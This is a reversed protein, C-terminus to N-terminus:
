FILYTPMSFKIGGQISSPTFKINRAPSSSAATFKIIGRTLTGLSTRYDGELMPIWSFNLYEQNVCYRDSEVCKQAFQTCLHLRRDNLTQLELQDLSDTYSSYNAGLIIRCARKQIRELQYAQDNTISGHWVPAAYECTPRVYGIYVSVLDGTPVGFRKLRSLMYLRRSSKSVMNNVQSQWGLNSQVTLGLLKTESVVELEIGAIRLSPPAPPERMFCVQMVKCKSPNLKLHNDKAWADLDQVDPGIQSVQKAPRVEGLTLDDVYKFSKTLSEESANNIVGLFTIPGLKTGQPVGCSLTEWESLASHYQVRQRRATLFNIIWPLLESRVGLEYLRQIALTHDICDFAKSFDTVVLTGVTGGKDTCAFERILRGPLADTGAAKKVNLKKLANYMDWVQIQPPLRAPLFAPLEQPNIPPRSQSVSAFNDNIARAIAKEDNQQVGPVSIIPRKQCKNTIIQIGKHWGSPDSSKLNQIRDNYYFKKAQDIARSVKNRLFRWLFMKKEAFAVQRKRILNKIEPTIWPKDESHLKIVKSPFHLDIAEQVTAYFANAKDAPSTANLVETWSHKTIWRGFEHVSQKRLPRVTRKHSKGNKSYGVPSWYVTNHDSKGIPSSVIPTGYYKQLNTIILDLIADNRTPKDVVQKLSHARCLPNINLRNFDGLIVIGLEPHQSKLTDLTTLIHEILLDQYPSEPPIYVACIVIASVARPLRHPRARLWICELEDPVKIDPLTEVPINENSYVAVGGGRKEIRTTTFLNFGDVALFDNDVRDPQWTETVVAIDIPNIDTQKLLIELEDFKNMLSRANTLFLGPLLFSTTNSETKTSPVNSASPVQALVAPPRTPRPSVESPRNGVVVQIPRQIKRGARKGRKYATKLIGLGNLKHKITPSLKVNSSSAISKLTESNYVYQVPTYLQTM